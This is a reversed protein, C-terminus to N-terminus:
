IKIGYGDPGYVRQTSSERISKIYAKAAELSEAEHILPWNYDTPRQGRIFWGKVVKHGKITEDDIRFNIYKM